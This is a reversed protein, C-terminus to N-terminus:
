QPQVNLKLMIRGPNAAALSAPVAMGEALKVAQAAATSDVPGENVVKCDTLTTQGVQCNLYVVAVGAAQAADAAPHPTSAASPAIALSLAFLSALM